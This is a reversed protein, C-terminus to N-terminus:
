SVVQKVYTNTLIDYLPRHSKSFVVSFLGLGYVCLLLFKYLNRILLRKKTIQEGFKDIYIINFKKQGITHGFVQEFFTCYVVYVLAFSSIAGGLLLISYYFPANIMINLPMVYIFVSTFLALGFNTTKDFTSIFFALLLMSPLLSLVGDIVFSFFRIAIPNFKNKM